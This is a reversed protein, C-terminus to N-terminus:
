CGKNTLFGRNGEETLKKKWLWNFIVDSYFM